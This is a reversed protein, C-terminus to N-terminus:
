RGTADDASFFFSASTACGSQLGAARDRGYFRRVLNPADHTDLCNLTCSGSQADSPLHITRCDADPDVRANLSKNRVLFSRVSATKNNVKRINDGTVGKTRAAVGCM